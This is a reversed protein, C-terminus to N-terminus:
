KAERTWGLGWWLLTNSLSQKLLLSCIKWIMMFALSLHFKDQVIKKKTLNFPIFNCVAERWFMCVLLTRRSRVHPSFQKPPFFVRSKKGSSIKERSRKKKKKEKKRTVVCFDNYILRATLCKKPVSNSIQAPKPGSGLRRNAISPM